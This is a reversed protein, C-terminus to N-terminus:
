AVGVSQLFSARLQADEELEGSFASTVVREEGRRDEGLILCLQEARVMCAAGRASGDRVLADAVDRTFWEQYTLRHCLSDVLRALRGFGYLQGGPLYAVHAVGRWPVLHHPCLGYVAIDRVVVLDRSADEFGESLLAVPDTDYGALLRDRWMDAVRSATVKLHVEDLDFGAAVLLEDVARRFRPQDFPRRRPIGAGQREHSM